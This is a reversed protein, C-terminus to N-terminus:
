DETLVLSDALIIDGGDASIENYMTNVTLWADGGDHTWTLDVLRVYPDGAPNQDIKDRVSMYNNGVWDGSPNRTVGVYGEDYWDNVGGSSDLGVIIKTQIRYDGAPLATLPISIRPRAHSKVHILGGPPVDLDAWVQSPNISKSGSREGIDAYLDPYEDAFDTWMVDMIVGPDGGADATLQVSITKESANDAADTARITVSYSGAPQEPLSLTAGDLGFLGADPGGTISWMVPEDASLEVSWPEGETGIHYGSTLITPPTLDPAEGILAMSGSDLVVADTDSRCGRFTCYLNLGDDHFELFGYQKTSDTVPGITYPGGKGSTDNGFPAAHCVYIGGPANTGDDYALMHADGSIMVIRDSVNGPGTVGTFYDVLDQRETDFGGWDDRNSGKGVIWPMTNAWIMVRDPNSHLWDFQTKLWAKQEAGLMSKSADDPKNKPHRTSRGDTMVLRARGIDVSYYIPSSGEESDLPPHPVLQRYGDLRSQRYAVPEGNIDLGHSDNPGFDHDDWIYYTPVQRHLASRVDDRFAEAIHGIWVQQDIGGYDPYLWDGLHVFALPGRAQIRSYTETTFPSRSCSGFAILFSTPTGAMPLTSFRGRKKLYVTDEVRVACHYQADADLGDASLKILGDTVEAGPGFRVDASFDEHPSVALRAMAGNPVDLKTTVVIGGDSQAGTWVFEVTTDDTDDYVVGSGVWEGLNRVQVPSGGVTSVGDLWAGGQKHHLM